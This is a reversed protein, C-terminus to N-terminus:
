LYQILWKIYLVSWFQFKHYFLKINHLLKNLFIIISSLERVIQRVIVKTTGIPIVKWSMLIFSYTYLYKQRERHLLHSLFHNNHFKWREAIVSTLIFYEEFKNISQIREPYLDIDTNALLWVRHVKIQM